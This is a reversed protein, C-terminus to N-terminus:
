EFFTLSQSFEPGDISRFAQKESPSSSLTCRNSPLWASVTKIKLFSVPPLEVEKFVAVLIDDLGRFGIPINRKEAEAEKQWRLRMSEQHQLKALVSESIGSAPTGVDSGLPSQPHVVGATLASFPSMPSMVHSPSQMSPTGASAGLSHKADPPTVRSKNPDYIISLEGSMCMYM